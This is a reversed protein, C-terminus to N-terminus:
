LVELAVAFKIALPLWEVHTFTVSTSSQFSVEAKM